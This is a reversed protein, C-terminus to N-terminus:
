FYACIYSSILSFSSILSVAILYIRLHMSAKRLTKVMRGDRLSEHFGASVEKVMKDAYHVPGSWRLLSIPQKGFWVPSCSLCKDWKRVESGDGGM